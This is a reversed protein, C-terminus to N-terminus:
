SPESERGFNRFPPLEALTPTLLEGVLDRSLVVLARGVLTPTALMSLENRIKSAIEEVLQPRQSQVKEQVHRLGGIIYCLRGALFAKQIEPRDRLAGLFKDKIETWSLKTAAFETSFKSEVLTILNGEELALADIIAFDYGPNQPNSPLYTTGSEADFPIDAVGNLPVFAQMLDRANPEILSKNFAAQPDLLVSRAVSAGVALISKNGLQGLLTRPLHSRHFSLTEQRWITDVVAIIRFLHALQKEFPRGHEAGERVDSLSCINSAARVLVYTESLSFATMEQWRRLLLPPIVAPGEDGVRFLYGEKEAENSSRQRVLTHKCYCSLAAFIAKDRLDEDQYKGKARFKATVKERIVDVASEDNDPFDRAVLVVTELLRPVGICEHLIAQFRGTKLLALTHPIEETILHQVANETLRKFHKVFEVPRKSAPTVAEQLLPGSLSTVLVHVDQSNTILTGVSTCLAGLSKKVNSENEVAVLIEDVVLIIHRTTGNPGPFNQAIDRRILTLATLATLEKCGVSKLFSLWIPFECADPCFHGFLMRPGVMFSPDEGAECPTKHNFTVAIGVANEIDNQFTESSSNNANDTQEREKGLMDMAVVWENDRIGGAGLRGRSAAIHAFRSKGTGPAAPLAILPQRGRNMSVESVKKWQRLLDLFSAQREETHEFFYDEMLTAPMEFRDQRVGFKAEVAEFFQHQDNEKRM